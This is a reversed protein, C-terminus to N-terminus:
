YDIVKIVKPYKTGLMQLIMKNFADGESSFLCHKQVYKPINWWWDDDAGAFSDLFEFGLITLRRIAYKGDSFQVIHPKFLNRM